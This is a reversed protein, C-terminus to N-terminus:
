KWKIAKAKGQVPAGFFSAKPLMDILVADAGMSAAVTRYKREIVTDAGAIARDISVFGIVLYPRSPEQYLVKVHDPSTPAFAAGPVRNGGSIVCGALVITAASTLLSSKVIKPQM